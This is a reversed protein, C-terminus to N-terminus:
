RQFQREVYRILDILFSRVQPAECAVACRRLWGEVSPHEGTERYPMKICRDRLDKELPKLDPDSGDGTWGVWYLLLFSENGVNEDRAVSGASLEQLYRLYRPVQEKQEGAWPKNEIAIWRAGGLEIFIDISGSRTSGDAMRIPGTAHETTVRCRPGPASGFVAAQAFVNQPALRLEELLCCLFVQGQAHSEAPDLLDAFIRSLDFERTVALGAVSFDAATRRDHGQRDRGDRPRDEVVRAALTAAAVAPEMVEFMAAIDRKLDDKRRQEDTEYQDLRSGVASLFAELEPETRM